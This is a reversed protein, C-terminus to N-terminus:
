LMFARRSKRRGGCDSSLSSADYASDRKGRRMRPGGFAVAALVETAPRVLALPFYNAPIGISSSHRTACGASGNPDAQDQRLAHSSAKKGCDQPWEANANANSLRALFLVRLASSNDAPCSIWHVRM